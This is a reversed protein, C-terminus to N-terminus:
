PKPRRKRTRKKPQHITPAILTDPQREPPTPKAAVAALAKARYL